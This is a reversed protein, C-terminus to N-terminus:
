EQMNARDSRTRSELTDVPLNVLLEIRNRLVRAAERFAARRAEDSGEVRAPDAVGWHATAPKGPWVPCAEQAADDCVTFIFDMRPAGAGAFEDWSKSHLGGTSFGAEEMTAIALPNIRGNPHSGASFAHFLGHGLHNLMVEAMISRASNGTCLFLVNYVRDPM